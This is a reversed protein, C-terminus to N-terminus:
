DIFFQQDFLFKEGKYWPNFAVGGIGDIKYAIADQSLQWALTNLLLGLSDVEFYAVLTRESNGKYIGEEEVRVNTLVVNELLYTLTRSLQTKGESDKIKLGINVVVKKM